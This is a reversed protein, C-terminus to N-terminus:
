WRQLGVADLSSSLRQLFSLAQSSHFSGRIRPPTPQSTGTHHIAQSHCGANQVNCGTFKQPLQKEVNNWVNWDIVVGCDDVRSLLQIFAHSKGILFLDPLFWCRPVLGAGSRGGVNRKWETRGGHPLKEQNQPDAPNEM